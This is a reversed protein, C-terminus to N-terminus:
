RGPIPAPEVDFGRDKVADVFGQLDQRAEYKKVQGECWDMVPIARDAISGGAMWRELFLARVAEGAALELESMESSRKALFSNLNRPPPAKLRDTLSVVNDTAVIESKPLSYYITNPQPFAMKMKATDWDRLVARYAVELREGESAGLQRKYEDSWAKITEAHRPFKRCMDAIMESIRLTSRGINLTEMIPNRKKTPYFGHPTIWRTRWV